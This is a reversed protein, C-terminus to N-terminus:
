QEDTTPEILPPEPARSATEEDDGNSEDDQVPEVRIAPQKGKGKGGRTFRFPRAPVDDDTEDDLDLDKATSSDDEEDDEDDAVGETASQDGGRGQSHHTSGSVTDPSTSRQHSRRVDTAANHM